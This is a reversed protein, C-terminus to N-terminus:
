SNEISEDVYSGLVKIDNHSLIKAIDEDDKHGEFEVYFTLDKKIIHSELKTLNINAQKFEELFTVLSGSEQPLKALISTKDFDSKGNDFDSVIIFRTENDHNDEINEYMVPIDYIKTAMHSCIVASNPEDKVISAAKATSEIPILEVNDLKYDKIFERCQGFVIDKSYIKKIDSLHESMSAFIHHIRLPVEAIIKLNYENLAILTDNVMGNSSNEIPIVGYKARKSAVANFVGSISNMSVYESMAGFRMESAQHTFTGLPGLYAVKEPAELNRSVAIIELFIAEIAERNLVGDSRKSLNELRNLIEKEREPRYIAGGSQHKVEGVKQVVQMRRNLLNLVTDDIKDLENRLALLQKQEEQETLKTTQQTKM